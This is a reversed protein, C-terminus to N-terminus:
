LATKIVAATQSDGVRAHLNIEPIGQYGALWRKTNSQHNLLTQLLDVIQMQHGTRKPSSRAQSDSRVWLTCLKLRQLLELEM